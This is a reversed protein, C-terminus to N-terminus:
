GARSQTSATGLSTVGSGIPVSKSGPFNVINSQTLLVTALTTRQVDGASSTSAALVAGNAQVTDTNDLLERDDDFSAVSLEVEPIRSAWDALESFAAFRVVLAVDFASALRKLTRLTYRGYNPDEWESITAQAVGTRAGLNAQSWDRSDRNAKIQAALGMSIHTEVLLDRLSKNTM